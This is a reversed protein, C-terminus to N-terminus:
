TRAHHPTGWVRPSSGVRCPLAEIISLREGCVHPHVPDAGDGILYKPANGVCTPIFRGKSPEQVNDPPSGWVRPSSGSKHGLLTQVVRREGCVHPHVSSLMPVGMFNHTEINNLTHYPSAMGLCELISVGPANCREAPLRKRDDANYIGASNEVRVRRKAFGAVRGAGSAEADPSKRNIILSLCSYIQKCM